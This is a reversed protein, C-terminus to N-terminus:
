RQLDNCDLATMDPVKIHQTIVKL